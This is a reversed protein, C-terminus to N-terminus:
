NDRRAKREERGDAKRAKSDEKKLAKREGREEKSDNRRAKREAKREGRAAKGDADAYSDSPVFPLSLAALLSALVIARVIRHM